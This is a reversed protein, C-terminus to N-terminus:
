YKIDNYTKLSMIGTTEDINFVTISACDVPAHLVANEAYTIDLFSPFVITSIGVHAFIIIREPVDKFKIYQKTKRNHKFGIKMFFDDIESNISNTFSEFNPLSKIIPASYFKKSSLNRYKQFVKKYEPICYIWQKRNDYDVAIVDWARSESAWEIVEPELGIKSLTPEGTLYTRRLPSVFAKDFKILSLYKSIEKAQYKGTETLDDAIDYKPLAHRVYYIEM